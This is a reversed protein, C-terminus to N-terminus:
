EKFEIFSYEANPINWDPKVTEYIFPKMCDIGEKVWVPQGTRAQKYIMDALQHPNCILYAVFDYVYLHSRIIIETGDKLKLLVGSNSSGIASNLEKIQEDSGIYEKWETM